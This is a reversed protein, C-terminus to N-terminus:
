GCRIMVFAIIVQKDTNHAGGKGKLYCLNLGTVFPLDEPFIKGQLPIFSLKSGGKSQLRLQSEVALLM